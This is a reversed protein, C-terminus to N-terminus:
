PKADSSVIWIGQKPEEARSRPNPNEGFGELDGGRTFVISQADPTWALEGIWINRAGKVNLVWAVKGGAPAAVLDSPFPASMVQELTFQKEQAHVKEPAQSGPAFCVLGYFLAM